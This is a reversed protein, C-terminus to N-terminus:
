EEPLYGNNQWSFRKYVYVCDTLLTCLEHADFLLNSGGSWDECIVEVAAFPLVTSAPGSPINGYELVADLTRAQSCQNESVISISPECFVGCSSLLLQIVQINNLVSNKVYRLLSPGDVAKWVRHYFHPPTRRCHCIESRYWFHVLLWRMLSM